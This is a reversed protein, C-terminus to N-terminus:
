ILLVEAVKRKKNNGRFGNGIIKFHKQSVHQHNKELAHKLLHSNFYRGNHDKVREFIRGKTEGIYNDNCTTEPFSGLYIVEHTHEFKTKDKIIFCSSPKNGTISVQM